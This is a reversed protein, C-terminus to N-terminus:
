RSAFVKQHHLLLVLDLAPKASLEQSKCPPRGKVRQESDAKRPNPPYFPDQGSSTCKISASPQHFNNNHETYQFDHQDEPNGQQKSCSSPLQM